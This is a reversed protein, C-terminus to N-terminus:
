PADTGEPRFFDVMKLGDETEKFIIYLTSIGSITEGDEEMEWPMELKYQKIKEGAMYDDELDAYEVMLIALVFDEQFIEWSCQNYMDDSEFYTRANTSDALMIAIVFEDFDAEYDQASSYFGTFLALVLLTKLIIKTM